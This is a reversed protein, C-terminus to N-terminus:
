IRPKSHNLSAACAQWWQQLAERKALNESHLELEPRLPAWHAARSPIRETVEAIHWGISTRFPASLQGPELAFVTSAFDSPMRHRSFYGLDGQATKTRQDESFRASLEAFSAERGTLKQHIDRILAEREPTDAEVTSLFIHRARITEPDTLAAAHTAFWRHPDGPTRETQQDLWHVQTLHATLIERCTRLTLSEDKLLSTLKGPAFGAEFAELSRILWAPPPLSPNAATSSAQRIAEAQVLSELVSTEISAAETPPQGQTALSIEVALNLQDRTLITGNVTAAVHAPLFIRERIWAWVPGQRAIDIGAYVTGLVALLVAPHFSGLPDACPSPKPTASGSTPM